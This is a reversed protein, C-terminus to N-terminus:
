AADSPHRGNRRSAEYLFAGAANRARHASIGTKRMNVAIKEAQRMLDAPGRLEHRVLRRLAFLEEPYVNSM